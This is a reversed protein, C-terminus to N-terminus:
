NIHGSNQQGTTGLVSSDEIPCQTLVNQNSIKVKLKHGHSYKKPERMSCYLRQGLFLSFPKTMYTEFFFFDFFYFFQAIIKNQFRCSQVLCSQLMTAYNAALKCSNQKKSVKRKSFCLHEMAEQLLVRKKTEFQMKIVADCIM